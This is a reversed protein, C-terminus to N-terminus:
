NACKYFETILNRCVFEDFNINRNSRIIEANLCGFTFAEGNIFILLESIFYNLAQNIKLTLNKISDEMSKSLPINSSILQKSGISLIFIPDGQPKEFCFIHEEEATIGNTISWNTFNYPNSYVLINKNYLSNNYSPGWYYNPINTGCHKEIKNWQQPLSLIEACIGKASQNGVGKFSNFAFGMYAELERLAYEKDSNTFNSFINDPFYLVRNLLLHDTNSITQEYKNRWRIINSSDSLEDFVEYEEIFEQLSVISLQKGFKQNNKIICKTIAEDLSHSAILINNKM